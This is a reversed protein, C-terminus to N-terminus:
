RSESDGLAAMEADSIEAVEMDTSEHDYQNVRVPLYEGIKFIALGVTASLLSATMISIKATSLTGSDSFALSSVFISMTFGIGGLVSAGFIHRKSVGFPLRAIGFRVLLMSVLFIGAQKGVFLGMIIGASVPTSMIESISDRNIAVGANALAFVPMILFSSWPSIKHELEHLMTDQYKEPDRTGPITMGLLVGAFTAHIGSKLMTYWLLAGLVIFVVSSRVKFRNAIILVCLIGVSMMIYTLSISGSYFVAIVIIAGLDDVIALATLFVVIGKPAKKGVISLVGIAFAIDTAMPIGFGNIESHGFTFAAYILAPVIMGGVAAAIPLVTTKISKLEGTLMEKKIEMGVVFFFVAMLGDNIWHSLSMSVAAKGLGITINKHLLENYGSAAVSNAIFIAMAACLLLLAGSSNKIWEMLRNNNENKIQTESENRMEKEIENRIEDDVLNRIKNKM